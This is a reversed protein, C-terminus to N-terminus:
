EDGEVIVGQYIVTHLPLIRLIWPLRDWEIPREPIYAIPPEALSRTWAFHPWWGYHSRRVILYGGRRRWEGMAFILCNSRRVSM